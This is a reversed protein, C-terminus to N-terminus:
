ESARSVLEYTRECVLIGLHDVFLGFVAVRQQGELVEGDRVPRIQSCRVEASQEGLHECICFGNQSQAM